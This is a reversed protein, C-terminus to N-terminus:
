LQGMMWEFLDKEFEEPVFDKLPIVLVAQTTRCRIHLESFDRIEFTVYSVRMDDITFYEGTNDYKKLIDVAKKYSEEYDEKMKRAIEELQSQSLLEKYIDEDLEYLIRGLSDTIKFNNDGGWLSGYRSSRYYREGSGYVKYDEEWDSGNSYWRGINM